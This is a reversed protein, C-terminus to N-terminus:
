FIPQTGCAMCRSRSLLAMMRNKHIIQLIPVAGDIDQCELHSLAACPTMHLCVLSASSRLLRLLLMIGM